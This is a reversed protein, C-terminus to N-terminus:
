SYQEGEGMLVAIANQGSIEFQYLLCKGINSEDSLQMDLDELVHISIFTELNRITRSRQCDEPKSHGTQVLHVYSM